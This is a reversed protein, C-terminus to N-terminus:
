GSKTPTATKEVGRLVGTTLLASVTATSAPPDNKGVWSPVDHFTRREEVWSARRQVLRCSGSRSQMNRLQRRELGAMGCVWRLGSESRFLSELQRRFRLGSLSGVQGGWYRARRRCSSFFCRVRAWGRRLEWWIVSIGNRQRQLNLAASQKM